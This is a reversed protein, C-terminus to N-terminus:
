KGKPHTALIFVGHDHGHGDPRSVDCQERPAAAYKLHERNQGPVEYGEM